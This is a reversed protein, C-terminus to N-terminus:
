VKAPLSGAIKYALIERITARRSRGMGDILLLRGKVPKARVCRADLRHALERLMHKAAAQPKDDNYTLLRATARANNALDSDTM